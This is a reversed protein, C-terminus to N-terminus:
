FGGFVCNSWNALKLTQWFLRCYLICGLFVILSSHDCESWRNEHQFCTLTHVTYVQLILSWIDKMVEFKVPTGQATLSGLGPFVYPVFTM